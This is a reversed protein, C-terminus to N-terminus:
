KPDGGRLRRLTGASLGNSLCQWPLRSRSQVIEEFVFQENDSSRCAHRSKCGLGIVCLSGFPRPDRVNQPVRICVM